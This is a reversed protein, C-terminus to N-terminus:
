EDEDESSSGSDELTQPWEESGDNTPEGLTAMIDKRKLPIPKPPVTNGLRRCDAAESKWSTLASKNKEKAENWAM